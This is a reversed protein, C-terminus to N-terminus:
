VNYTSQEHNARWNQLQILKPSQGICLVSEDALPIRSADANLLVSM